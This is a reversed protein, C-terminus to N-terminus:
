FTRQFKYDAVLPLSAAIMSFDDLSREREWSKRKKEQVESNEHIDDVSETKNWDSLRATPLSVLHLFIGSCLLIFILVADFQFVYFIWFVNRLIEIGSLAIPDHNVQLIIQFLKKM